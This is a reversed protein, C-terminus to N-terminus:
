ISRGLTTLIAAAESRYQRGHNAVHALMQWLLGGDPEGRMTTHSVVAMVDVDTLGAVFARLQQEETRWSDFLPM